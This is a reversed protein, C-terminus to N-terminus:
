PHPGSEMPNTDKTFLSVQPYESSNSDQALAIENERREGRGM